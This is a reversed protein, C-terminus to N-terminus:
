RLANRVREWVEGGRKGPQSDSCVKVMMRAVANHKEASRRMDAYRENAVYVDKMNWMAGEGKREGKGKAV